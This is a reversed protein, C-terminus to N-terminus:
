IVNSGEELSNKEEACRLKSLSEMVENKIARNRFEIFLPRGM